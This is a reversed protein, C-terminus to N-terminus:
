AAHPFIRYSRFIRKSTLITFKLPLSSIYKAGPEMTLSLEPLALINTSFHSFPFTTTHQPFLPCIICDSYGTSHTDRM